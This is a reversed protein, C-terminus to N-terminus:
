GGSGFLQGLGTAGMGLGAVTAGMSPAAAYNTTTTQQGLQGPSTGHLIGSLFQQQAYPYNQFNQFNQNLLNNVNTALQQQQQGMQNQGSLIGMQQNYQNQGLQGMQAGAGLLQQNANLGLNAAFQQQQSNLQQAGLGYQAGLQANAQNFQNGTLGQQLQQGQAQLNAGLNAQGAQLQQGQSTNFQNQANQFANQSGTAQIGQLQSQLNRNAESEMLASRDGNLAGMKAAGAGLTPLNRAYDQIAGRKQQDVVDQQYPSMYQNVNQGTFSQPGQMQYNQLNTSQFGPGSYQNTANFPQYSGALNQANLGALGTMGTAQDNQPAVQMSQMGAQAQQQM